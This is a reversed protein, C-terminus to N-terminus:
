GAHGDLAGEPERHSQRIHVPRAPNGAWFAGAPVEEGKMLFADPGLEAGDSLTGGYHILAHNGITCGSGLTIRDSKFTGDEQSHCQLRAQYNLTCDDGITIMTKEVLDAGDDFCRKGIRAGLLRWAWIKFPTGDLFKPMFSLKWYREHFWFYKDYISCYQPRLPRFGAAARELLILYLFSVILTLITGVAIAGAGLADYFAAAFWGILTGLFVYFWRGLLFLGMTSLDYRVKIALRRRLEDEQKLHDFRSDRAVSRPIEFSPAGLIGINEYSKGDIPVTVKTALLCNDRARSEPPYAILNGLFNHDGITVKSVRFSTSSFEANMISLGDAVMTGTGVRTLFPNEHRIDFGFNSGTQEVPKMKYGLSRLFHVIFCTDGLMTIFFRVNTMRAITRHAWHHFGYLRYVKGPKIFLNLLRPITIMFIFGLLAAGFLLAFSMLLADRYFNWSTFPEPPGDTTAVVGNLQPALALMLAVGGVVIPVYIFLVNLLQGLGFVTRRVAGCPVPPVARHPEDIRQAPSGQWREGAPVSQGTHLCSAHDLEAGDGIETDIDLVSMEGVHVNRGVTVSGIEIMGARARYGNYFVDKRVTAGDALTILDTAVPVNRSYIAVGRGIKAGLARLYLNFLPSTTSTRSRGGVLLLLPNARIMMKVIWFRVYTMSWVRFRRPKWRGILIWKVLIPIICLAAVGVASFEVARVYIGLPGNGRAVWDYGHSTVLAALYAYAAFTLFQLTGCLVHQAASVPKPPQAATAVPAEVAAPGGNGLATALSKVTPHRYIDKMSVSPLDTRKRVRACFRAMLMSDAGLDEFFHSDVPVPDVGVIDALVEALAQETGITYKRYKGQNSTRGPGSPVVDVTEGM